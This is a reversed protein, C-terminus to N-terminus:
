VKEIEGASMECTVTHHMIKLLVKVRGSATVPKDLIGVLDRFVGSRIRVEDGKSMTIRQEIIGEGDIREKIIEIMEDPVPVPLAGDGLIKRVGRTYKIMHYLNADSLDMHVFLYAPFLPRVRSMTRGGGKVMTRIKPLFTEYNANRLHQQVTEEATPKTQV